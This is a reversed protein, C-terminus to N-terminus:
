RDQELAWRIRRVLAAYPEYTEAPIYIKAWGKIGHMEARLSGDAFERTPFKQIRSQRNEVLVSRYNVVLM